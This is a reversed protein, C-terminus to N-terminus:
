EHNRRGNNLLVNQRSQVCLFELPEFDLRTLFRRDIELFFDAHLKAGVHQLKEHVVACNVARRCHQDVQIAAGATVIAHASARRSM